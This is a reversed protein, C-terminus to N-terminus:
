DPMNLNNLTVFEQLLNRVYEETALKKSGSDKNTGSTSGVYVDGQFWATGDWALTHANSRADDALGNGVIHAYAGRSNFGGSSDKINLMGEVHQALGHAVTFDGEAHAGRGFAETNTGESHAYKYAVTYNGEAHSHEGYTATYGGETHSYDGAAITNLGEAHAVAGIAMSGAGESHASEGIAITPGFKKITIQTIEENNILDLEEESLEPLFEIIYNPTDNGGVHEHGIITHYNNEITFYSLQWSRESMASSITIAMNDASANTISGITLELPESDEEQTGGEAHSNIGSAITNYGEAHSYDGLSKTNGGETHSSEGGALNSDPWFVLVPTDTIKGSYLSTDVTITSLDQASDYLTTLIECIKNNIGSQPNNYLIYQGIAVEGSITYTTTNKAGNLIHETGVITGEAHSNKGSAKTFFGESHSNEGFATTKCGESHSAKGSATSYTGEAHSYIGSAITNGNETHSAFGSALTGIGESHAGQASAKTGTGEAHAQLNTAQCNRGEAHSSEASAITGDGEAHSCNESATTNRGEAHAGYEGSATTSYGEAHSYSKSAVSNYGEAHSYNGSASTGSGEEVSSRVTLKGTMIDGSKLVFTKNFLETYTTLGRFNLFNKDDILQYNFTIHDEEIENNSRLNTITFLFGQLDTFYVDSRLKGSVFSGLKTVPELPHLPGNLSEQPDIKYTNALGEDSSYELTYYEDNTTLETFILDDVSAPTEVGTKLGISYIKAGENLYLHITAM